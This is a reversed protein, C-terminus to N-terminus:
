KIEFGCNLTHFTEYIVECENRVPENYSAFSWRGVDTAEYSLQNSHRVPIALDTVPEYITIIM